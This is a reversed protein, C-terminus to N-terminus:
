EKKQCACTDCNSMQKILEITTFYSFKKQHCPILIDPFVGTSEKLIKAYREELVKFQVAKHAMDVGRAVELYMGNRDAEIQKLQAYIYARTELYAECGELYLNKRKVSSAIPVANKFLKTAHKFSSTNMGVAYAHGMTLMGIIAVYKQLRM